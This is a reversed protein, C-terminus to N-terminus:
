DWAPWVHFIAQVWYEGIEYINSILVSIMFALFVNHFLSSNKSFYRVYPFVFIVTALPTFVHTFIDYWSTSGFLGLINGLIDLLGAIFLLFLGFDSRPWGKHRGWLYVFYTAAYYVLGQYIDPPYFAVILALIFLWIGGLFTSKDVRPM